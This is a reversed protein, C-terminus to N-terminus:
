IKFNWCPTVNKKIKDIGFNIKKQLPKQIIKEFLLKLFFIQKDNEFNLAECYVFM